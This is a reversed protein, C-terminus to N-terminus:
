IVWSSKLIRWNKEIQIQNILHYMGEYPAVVLIQAQNVM